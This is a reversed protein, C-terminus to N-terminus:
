NDKVQEEIAPAEAKQDAPPQALAAELEAENLGPELALLELQHPNLDRIRDAKSAFRALADLRRQEELIAIRKEQDSIYRQQEGIHKQQEGIHRTLKAIIADLGARVPEALQEMLPQIESAPAAPNM